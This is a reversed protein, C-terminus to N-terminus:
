IEFFYAIIRFVVIRRKISFHIPILGLALEPCAAVGGEAASSRPIYRNTPTAFIGKCALM